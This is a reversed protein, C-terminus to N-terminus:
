KVRFWDMTRGKKDLPGRLMIVGGNRYVEVIASGDELKWRGTVDQAFAAALPMLMFIMSFIIKKM